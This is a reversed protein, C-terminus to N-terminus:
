MRLNKHPNTNIMRIAACYDVLHYTSFYAMKRSTVIYTHLARSLLLYFFSISCRLIVSDWPELFLELDNRCFDHKMFFLDQTTPLAVKPGQYASFGSRGRPDTSKKWWWVPFSQNKKKLLVWTTVVKLSMMFSIWLILPFVHLAVMLLRELLFIIHSQMMFGLGLFPSVVIDYLPRM